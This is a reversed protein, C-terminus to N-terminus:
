RIDDSPSMAGLNHAIALANIADAVTKDVMRVIAVCFTWEETGDVDGWMLYGDVTPPPEAGPMSSYISRAREIQDKTLAPM